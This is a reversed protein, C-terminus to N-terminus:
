KVDKKKRYEIWKKVQVDWEDLKNSSDNQINKDQKGYEDLKCFLDTSINKNDYSINNHQTQKCVVNRLKKINISQSKKNIFFSKGFISSVQILYM